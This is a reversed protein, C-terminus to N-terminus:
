EGRFKFKNKLAKLDPKNSVKLEQLFNAWNQMMRHRVEIFTTRNYARGHVDKVSHSLQMEIVQLPFCLEEELLTRATARWGHGSLEEKSIGMRRYASLVANDSMPRSFSRPSPFLYESDGTARHLHKLIKLSQESLPVVHDSQTKTVFFRWERKDLDIDAWRAKRLEGPRVFLLPALKLAASVVLTGDYEDVMRLIAGVKEPRVVAARHETPNLPRLTEKVAPIPDPKTRKELGIAFLMIKGCYGIIRHTTERVGRAEIKRAVAIFDSARIEDIPLKGVVPFVDNELRSIIRRRTGDVLNVTKTKWWDRAIFEFTNETAAKVAAKAQKRHEAPNVGNKLLSNCEYAKVRADALSIAPFTGLSILQNKGNFKYKFRWWKQGKSTVYLFLNEGDHFATQKKGPLAKLKKIQASKLAM